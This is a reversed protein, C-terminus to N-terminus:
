TIIYSEGSACGANFKSRPVMDLLARVSGPSLDGIGRIVVSDYKDFIEIERDSANVLDTFYVLRTAPIGGVVEGELFNVVEGEREPFKLLRSLNKGM